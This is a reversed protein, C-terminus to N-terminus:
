GLSVAFEALHGGCLGLRTDRAHRLGPLRTGLLTGYPGDLTQDQLAPSVWLPPSERVRVDLGAWKRVRSNEGDAGIIWGCRVAELDVQGWNLQAGIPFSDAAGISVGLESLAALADPMLGEGCAKDAPPVIGDAVTVNCGRPRTAIAAALGAPGGGIILIDTNVVEVVDTWPQRANCTTKRAPFISKNVSGRSRPPLKGGLGSSARSNTAAIQRGGQPLFKILYCRIKTSIFGSTLIILGTVELLIM